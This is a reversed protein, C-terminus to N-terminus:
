QKTAESLPKTTEDQQSIAAVSKLVATAGRLPEATRALIPNLVLAALVVLTGSPKRPFAGPAMSKPRAGSPISIM